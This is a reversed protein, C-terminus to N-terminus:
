PLVGVVTVVKAGSEASVSTGDSADIGSATVRLVFGDPVEADGPEEVVELRGQTSRSGFPRLTGLRHIAPGRVDLGGPLDLTATVRRIRSEGQNEVTAQVTFPEGVLVPEGPVTLSVLLSNVKVTATVSGQDQAALLGEAALMLALGLALLLAGLRWWRRLIAVPM